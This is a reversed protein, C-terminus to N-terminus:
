REPRWQQELIAYILSDWWRGKFYEDERLRGELRMGLKELVHASALNEALCYAWIRHVRLEMFGFELVARAAESAFGRGWYAPDLEYGIDAQRAEPERKGLSRLRIGVNGILKGTQLLQLAFQYYLRPKANQDEIFGLVFAHEATDSLAREPYYRQYRPDQHYAQVARWDEIVFERLRLRETIIEM